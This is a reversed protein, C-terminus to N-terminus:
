FPEVSDHTGTVPIAEFAPKYRLFFELMARYNPEHARLLRDLKRHPPLDGRGFRSRPAFPYDFLVQQAHAKDHGLARATALEACAEMLAREQHALETRAEMLAREQHALEAGTEALARQQRALEKRLVRRAVGRILEKGPM